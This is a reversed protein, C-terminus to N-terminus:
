GGALSGVAGAGGRSRLAREQPHDAPRRRRCPPPHLAGLRAVHASRPPHRGRRRRHGRRHFLRLDHGAPQPPHDDGGQATRHHRLHLVALRARGGRGGGGEGGGRGRAPSLGPRGHGGGRACLASGPRSGGGGGQRPVATGGGCGRPDLGARRSAVPPERAGGRSGGVLLRAPNGPLLSPQPRVGGGPRRGRSRLTNSANRGHARRAPVPRPPRVLDGAGLRPGAARRPRPRKPRVASRRERNRGRGQGERRSRPRM